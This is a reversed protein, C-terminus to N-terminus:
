GTSRGRSPAPAGPAEVLAALVADHDRKIGRAFADLVTGKADALWSDLTPGAEKDPAGRILAAFRSALEGAQTLDPAAEALHALFAGEQADLKNPATTLLRACRRSSPEPWAAARRVGAARLPPDERRGRAVWRAVVNVSGAFSLPQLERWLRWGKRCGERWRTDLHPVYPDLPRPQAPKDYSPPGGARLWCHAATASMGLALAIEQVSVGSEHLRCLEEYRVLRRARRDAQLQTERTDHSAPAVEESAAGAEHTVARAVQRM